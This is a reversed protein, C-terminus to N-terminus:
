FAVGGDVAPACCGSTFRIAVRASAMKPSFSSTRLAVPARATTPRPTLISHMSPPPMLPKAVIEMNRRRSSPVPFLTCSSNSRIQPVLVPPMRATPTPTCLCESSRHLSSYRSKPVRM